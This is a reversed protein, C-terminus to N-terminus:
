RVDFAQEERNGFIGQPRFIVLLVLGLGVLIFRIFSFNNANILWDPLAWGRDDTAQSLVNDTLSIIFWFIISGVVPGLVKGVGGLVLMAYAFFTLETRFTIPNATQNGVALVVGGFAGIVGGLVLSVMKYTFVNKGLSRAADEDERISRLVRGWPSRILAWTLLCFLVVLTWGCIIAWLDYGSLRAKWLFFEAREYPITDRFDQTFQNIGDTGGLQPTWKPTSVVLRLIEAAAITVIALYDSRLRLTPVGLLLAFIAAVVPVLPLAAWLSWDNIGVPVAVAYAGLLCFGAQGFNLLGTYGFHINLGMAALAYGIANVGIAAYLANSIISSWNM